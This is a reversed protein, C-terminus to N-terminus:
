RRMGGGGSAATGGREVILSVHGILEIETEPIRVEAELREGGREGADEALESQDGSFAAGVALEGADDGGAGVGDVPGFGGDILADIVILSHFGIAGLGGGVDFRGEGFVGDGFGGLLEVVVGGVLELHAPAEPGGFRVGGAEVGEPAELGGANADDAEARVEVGAAVLLVAVDADVEAEVCGPGEFALQGVFGEVFLGGFADLLVDFLQEREREGDFFM